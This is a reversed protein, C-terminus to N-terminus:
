YLKFTFSEEYHNPLWKLLHALDGVEIMWKSRIWAMTNKAEVKSDDALSKSM